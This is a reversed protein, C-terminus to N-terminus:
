GGRAERARERMRADLQARSRAFFGALRRREAESAVAAISEVWTRAGDIITGIGAAAEADFAPRGTVELYVPSTHAGMATAFASYIQRDSTVKAALWGGHTVKVREALELRDSAGDARVWAVVAGDHVLELRDMVPLASAASLRVDVTGGRKGLQIVDGPERGEVRLDIFPGSSVSTRGARVAAAWSEFSLAREPDLRAFTRIAGLPIESTMKDTGGVVPLRYGCNLFRYWEQIPPGDVGPALTQLEVAEIKGAVIDAAVEAYPLPFHVAIALGGLDRARDTWDAILWELPDGLRAEPSGASAM